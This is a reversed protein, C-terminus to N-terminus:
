METHIFILFRGNVDDFSLLQFGLFKLLVFYFLMRLHIEKSSNDLCGGNGTFFAKLEFYVNRSDNPSLSENKSFFSNDFPPQVEMVCAVTMNRNSNKKWENSTIVTESFLRTFFKNTEIM